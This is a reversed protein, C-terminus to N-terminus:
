FGAQWQELDEITDIDHREPLLDVQFGLEEINRFTNKLVFKTSWMVNQFIDIGPSQMGVLYYGSDKTPGLVIKNQELSEFAKELISWKLGPIDTGILVVKEAGISFVNQFAKHMREGIDGRSQTQIKMEPFAANFYSKGSESALYLNLTTNQSRHNSLNILIEYLLRAYVGQASRTGIAKALRTKVDEGFPFKAMIIVENQSM